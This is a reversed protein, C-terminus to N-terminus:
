PNRDPDLHRLLICSVNDPAGNSRAAAVLRAAIRDLKEAASLISRIAAEEVTGHLGDSCILLLDQDLLELERSQVEITEKAGAAQTLINRMPHNLAEPARLTGSRIMMGVWTDDITVLTLENNRFLYVRSDGVSAIAARNGDVRVTAVTTGMGSCEPSQESRNWVQQNAMQIATTLRNENLSRGFDYGFPWTGELGDTSSDIFYRITSISLEAAVEGHSHGGMGDALVFLSLGDDVLIRDENEKRVCGPDSCGYSDIM